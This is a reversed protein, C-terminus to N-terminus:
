DNKWRATYKRLIFEPKYSLKSERLSELGMDDERNIYRIDPHNRLLLRTFERCVMSYAGNMANDAKEFLVDVTDHGSLAGVSFGVPNGDARLVGGELGLREFCEFALMIAEREFLINDDLRDANDRAWQDLMVICGPILERTLPLFEWEHEAEFRNCHNKKGHLAKGSFSSLKDALYIYDDHSPDNSYEFCGPYESELLERQSDTVGMIVFPMGFYAAYERCAETVPRLPGSGVPYVFASWGSCSFLAAMRDGFRCVRRVYRSNWVYINGFNFDASPSNELMVLEDVWPKDALTINEFELM